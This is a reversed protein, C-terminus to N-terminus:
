DPHIGNETQDPPSVCICLGVFVDFTLCMFPKVHRVSLVYSCFKYLCQKEAKQYSGHATNEM